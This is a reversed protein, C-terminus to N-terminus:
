LRLTSSAIPCTLRATGKTASRTNPRLDRHIRRDLGSGAVKSWTYSGLMYLGANFRKELKATMAQYSSWGGNYALLIVRYDPFPRRQRHPTNREPRDFRHELEPTRATEPGYERRIRSRASCGAHPFASYRFVMPQYLSDQQAPRFQLIPNPSASLSPMMQSMLLTPKTPDSNLTQSQYYQPGIM